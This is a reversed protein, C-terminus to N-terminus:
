LEFKKSHNKYHPGDMELVRLVIELGKIPDM